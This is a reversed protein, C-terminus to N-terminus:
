EDDESWDIHCGCVRCYCDGVELEYNCKPCHPFTQFHNKIYRDEVVCKPRIAKPPEPQATPIEDIWVDIRNESMERYVDDANAMIGVNNLATEILRNKLHNIAAQRSITDSNGVSETKKRCCDESMCIYITYGCALAIQEFVSYKPERSGKVYRSLTVETIQAREAVKRQTMSTNNLMIQILKNTMKKGRQMAVFVMTQREAHTAVTVRM